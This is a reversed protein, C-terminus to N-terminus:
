LETLMALPAIAPSGPNSEVLQRAEAETLGGSLLLGSSDVLGWEPGSRHSLCELDFMQESARTVRWTTARTTGYEAGYRMTWQQDASSGAALMLMEMWADNQPWFWNYWREGFANDAYPDALLNELGESLEHITLSSDVTARLIGSERNVENHAQTLSIPSM